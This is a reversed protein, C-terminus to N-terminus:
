RPPSILLESNGDGGPGRQCTQTSIFRLGDAIQKKARGPSWSLHNKKCFTIVIDVVDQLTWGFKRRLWLAEEVIRKTYLSNDPTDGHDWGRRMEWTAIIDGLQKATRDWGQVFQRILRDSASRGWDLVFPDGPYASPGSASALEQALAAKGAALDPWLEAVLHDIVEQRHEITPSSGVCALGSLTVWGTRYLSLETGDAFPKNLCQESIPLDGFILARLGKLSPSFESYSDASRVYESIHKPVKFPAALACRKADGDFAVLNSVLNFEPLARIQEPSPLALGIGFARGNDLLDLADDLTRWCKPDKYNGWSHGDSKLPVKKDGREVNWAVFQRSSKLIRPLNNILNDVTPRAYQIM